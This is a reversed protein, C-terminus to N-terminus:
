PINTYKLDSFQTYEIVCDTSNSEATLILGRQVGLDGIFTNLACLQVYSHQYMVAHVYLIVPNQM